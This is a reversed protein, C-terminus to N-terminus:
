ISARKYRKGPEGRFPTEIQEDDVFFCLDYAGERSTEIDVMAVYTAQAESVETPFLYVQRIRAKSWAM